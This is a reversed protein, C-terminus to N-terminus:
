YNCLTDSHTLGMVQAIARDTDARKTASPDFRNFPTFEMTFSTEITDDTPTFNKSGTLHIPLYGHRTKFRILLAGLWAEVAPETVGPAPIFKVYARNRDQFAQEAPEYHGECSSFTQVLGSNNLAEVLPRIRPELDTMPCFYPM